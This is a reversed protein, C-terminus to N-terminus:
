GRKGRNHEGHRRSHEGDGRNAGPATWTAFRPRSRREPREGALEPGGGHHAVMSVRRGPPWSRGLRGAGNIQDHIASILLYGKPTYGTWPSFISWAWPATWLWMRVMAWDAGAANQWTLVVVAAM